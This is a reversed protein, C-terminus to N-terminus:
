AGGLEYLVMIDRWSFWWDPDWPSDEHLFDWESVFEFVSFSCWAGIGTEYKLILEKLDISHMYRLVDLFSVYLRELSQFCRQQECAQLSPGCARVSTFPEEQRYCMFFSRLSRVNPADQLGSLWIFSAHLFDFLLRAEQRIKRGQEVLSEPSMLLREGQCNVPRVEATVLCSPPLFAVHPVDSEGFDLVSSAAVPLSPHESSCSVSHVIETSSSATACSSVPLVSSLMASTSTSTSELQSLITLRRRSGHCHASHSRGFKKEVARIMLGYKSHEKFEFRAGDTKWGESHSATEYVSAYRGPFCRDVLHGFVVYGEQDRPVPCRDYRLHRCLQKSIDKNYELSTLAM